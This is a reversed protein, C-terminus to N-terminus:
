CNDSHIIQELPLSQLRELDACSLETESIDLIRLNALQFVPEINNLPNGKLSLAEIRSFLQLGELDTIGAYSCNIQILDRASSIGNDEIHQVLCNELQRDALSFNLFLSPPQYLLNDNLLLNYNSCASCLVLSLSLPLLKM